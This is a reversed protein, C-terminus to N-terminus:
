VVLNPRRSASIDCFTSTRSVQHEVDTWGKRRQNSGTSERAQNDGLGQSQLHPSTARCSLYRDKELNDPGQMGAGKGILRGLSTESRDQTQDMGELNNSLM